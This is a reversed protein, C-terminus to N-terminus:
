TTAFLKDMHTIQFLELVTGELGHITVDGGLPHVKKHLAVLISLGSSDIYRVGNFDFLFHLKDQAVLNMTLERLAAADEDFIRVPMPIIVKGDREHIKYKM